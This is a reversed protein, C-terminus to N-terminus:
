ATSLLTGGCSCLHEIGLICAANVERMPLSFNVEGCKEAAVVNSMVMYIEAERLGRRSSATDIRAELPVYRLPALDCVFANAKRLEKAGIMPKRMVALWIILRLMEKVNCIISPPDLVVPYHRRHKVNFLRIDGETKDMRPYILHVSRYATPRDDIGACAEVICDTLLYALTRTEHCV